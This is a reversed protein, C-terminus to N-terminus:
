KKLALYEYAKRTVLEVMPLEAKGFSSTTQWEDNKDKYSREIVTNYVTVDRNDITINKKWITATIAGDKIGVIFKKEPMDKEETM